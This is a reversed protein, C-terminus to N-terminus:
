GCAKVFCDRAARRELAQQYAALIDAIWRKVGYCDRVRIFARDVLSNRAAPEMQLVSRMASALSAADKPPTLIGYPMSEPKNVPLLIDAIGGIASGIVPVGLAMAELVALSTAEIVGNAPVSPVLVAQAGKMLPLLRASPVSGLFEVRSRVGLDVAIKRLSNHLSGDGAILLRVDCDKLQALARIAFEVGNKPVLRRPVIFYNPLSIRSKEQPLITALKEVNVANEIICMREAPMKFEDTLISAQGRDVPLAMDIGAFSEQEYQRILQCSKGAPNKGSMQHERSWPGHVTQVIAAYPVGARLAACSALPDHCHIIWPGDGHVANAIRQQLRVAMAQYARYRAEERNLLRSALYKFRASPSPKLHGGHIVGQFFGRTSLQEILNTLHTSAGGLHPYSFITAILVKM